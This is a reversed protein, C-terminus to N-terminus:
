RRARRLGAAILPLPDDPAWFAKAECRAAWRGWELVGVGDERAATWDDPHWWAVAAPWDASVPRPRGTFDAHVLDPINVGARAGPHHWLQFRPNVELLRLRGDEDRKFDFKAVGVLGLRATLDRGWRGVDQADTLTLATTHGYEAPRTRVKRGTFRAAIRGSADVYTHYSEIRDERGPIAPQLILTQGLECLAPWLAALEEQTHLHVAKGRIGLRNHWERDRRQPKLVLPLGLERVEPPNSGPRATLVLTPPIPLDLRVALDAFRGKDTFDLVVRHPAIAFRFATALRDRHASVLLLAEDSTFLLPLPEPQQQGYAVLKTVFEEEGGLHPDAWDRVTVTTAYRSRRGPDYPGPLLRSRIGALALARVVEILNVGGGLIVADPLRVRSLASGRFSRTGGAGPAQVEREKPQSPEGPRTATPPRGAAVLHSARRTVARVPNRPHHVCARPFNREHLLAITAAVDYDLTFFTARRQGTDLLMSRARPRREWQRSQGVSGPNLLFRQPDDLCLERRVPVPGCQEGQVRPRHTHGLVLVRAAPHASSLQAFQEVAARQSQVYETPDVLSGHAVVVDEVEITLPLGGLFAYADDRLVTRSWELTARALEGVREEPLRRLLTLEHNGAVCIAGLEAMTEVCENPQPGYGVLDGACLWSDVGANSLSRITAQLASLNAHIDSVVGYRVEVRWVTSKREPPRSSFSDGVIPRLRSLCGHSLCNDGQDVQSPRSSVRLQPFGHCSHQTGGVEHLPGLDRRELPRKRGVATGVVSNTDTGTRSGKMEGQMGQTDAPPIPDDGHRVGEVRRHFRDVLGSRGDDQHLDVLGGPSHIGLREGGGDVSSRRDNGDV